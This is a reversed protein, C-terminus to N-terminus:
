AQEALARVIERDGHASDIEALLRPVQDAEEAHVRRIREARIAELVGPEPPDCKGFIANSIETSLGYEPCCLLPVGVVIFHKHLSARAGGANLMGTYGFRLEEVQEEPTRFDHDPRHSSRSQGIRQISQLADVAMLDLIQEPDVNPREDLWSSVLQNWVLVLTERDIPAMYAPAPWTVTVGGSVHVGLDGLAPPPSKTQDTSDVHVDRIIRLLVSQVTDLGFVQGAIDLPAIQAHPLLPRGISSVVPEPFENGNSTELRGGRLRALWSGPGGLFPAGVAEWLQHLQVYAAGRGRRLRPIERELVLSHTRAQGGTRRADLIELVRSETFYLQLPRQKGNAWGPMIELGKYDEPMAELFRRVEEGRVGGVPIRFWAVSNLVDDVEGDDPGDIHELWGVASYSGLDIKSLRRRRLAVGARLVREFRTGCLVRIDDFLANAAEAELGSEPLTAMLGVLLADADHQRPQVGERAILERWLFSLPRGIEKTNTTLEDIMEASDDNLMCMLIGQMRPLPDAASRLVMQIRILTKTWIERFTIPLWLDDSTPCLHGPVRLSVLGGGGDLQHEGVLPMFVLISLQFAAAAMQADEDREVLEPWREGDRLRIFGSHVAPIRFGPEFVQPMFRVREGSSHVALGPGVSAATEADEPIAYRSHANRFLEEVFDEIGLGERRRGIKGLAEALQNLHRHYRPLAAQVTASHSKIFFKLREAVSTEQEELLTLLRETREREPVPQREVIHSPPFVKAFLDRALVRPDIHGRIARPPSTMPPVALAATFHGILSAMFLNEDGALLFAVNPHWLVRTMHLLEACRDPQMDADDVAVIFLPQTDERGPAARQWTLVLRDVFSRHSHAHELASEAANELVWVYESPDMESRRSALNNRWGRGVAELVRKWDEDLARDDETWRDADPPTAARRLAALTQIALPVDTALREMDILCVPTLESHRPQDSGKPYFTGCCTLADLLLTTKGSGRPGDILLAKATRFRDISNPLRDGKRRASAEDLAATRMGELRQLLDDLEEEEAPRNELDILVHAM